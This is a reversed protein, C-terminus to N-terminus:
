KEEDEEPMKVIKKLCTAFIDIADWDIAWRDTAICIYSGGGADRTFVKLSQGNDKEQCSDSDQYFVLEVESLQVDKLGMFTGCKLPNAEKKESKAM